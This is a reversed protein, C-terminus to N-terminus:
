TFFPQLAGSPLATEIDHRLEGSAARLAFHEAPPGFLALAKTDRLWKEVPFDKVFGAGGLLQVGNDAVRWAAEDAHVAAEDCFGFNGRELEVAARWVMWRASEVDMHMDALTFAIAQFHAVPKGFAQRDQTYELATEYSARALGVQRAARVLAAHALFRQASAVFAGGTLKHDAPVRVRSLTLPRADVTELGLLAHRTGVSLGAADAPVVFAAGGDWGSQGDLQALVVYSAARGANVVFRKEGDLICDNGDKRARTTFGEAAPQADSWAVAGHRRAGDSAVFPVLFRRQEDPNGFAVLAPAFLDFLAVAAGPDGFSLEEHVLAATLLGLGQGGAAEPVDVHRLGLEHFTHLLNEPVEGAHEMERMKPRISEAALKRVTDQILRQEEELAFSIMAAEVSHGM